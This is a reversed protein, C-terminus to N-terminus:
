FTKNWTSFINLQCVKEKDNGRGYWVCSAQWVKSDLYNWETITWQRLNWSFITRDIQFDPQDHGVVSLLKPLQLSLVEVWQASTTFIYLCFLSSFFYNMFDFILFFPAWFPLFIIWHYTLLLFLLLMYCVPYFLVFFLFLFFLFLLLISAYFSCTRETRELSGKPKKQPFSFLSFSLFFSLVSLTM